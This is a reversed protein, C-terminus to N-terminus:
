EIGIGSSLPLKKVFRQGKFIFSVATDSVRTVKAGLVTDGIGVVNGNVIAENGMIGDITIKDIIARAPNRALEEEYRRQRELAERKAIEIAEAKKREDLLRKQEALRAKDISDVEERSLFPDRKNKPAFRTQEKEKAAVTERKGGLMVDMEKPMDAQSFACVGLFLGSLSVIFIKPLKKM